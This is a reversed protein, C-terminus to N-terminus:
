VRILRYSFIELIDTMTIPRILRRNDKVLWVRHCKLDTMTQLITLLSVTDYIVHFGRLIYEMHLDMREKWLKGEQHVMIPILTGISLAGVIEGVENIVPVAGYSHRSLIDYGEEFTAMSSIRVPNYVPELLFPLSEHIPIDIGKFEKAHKYLISTLKSRTIIAHVTLPYLQCAPRDNTIFVRHIKLELMKKMIQEVTDRKNFELVGNHNSADIGLGVQETAAFHRLTQQTRRYCKMYFSLIDHRSIFGIVDEQGVLSCSSFVALSSYGKELMMEAADLIFVNDKVGDLLIPNEEDGLEVVERIERDLVPHKSAGNGM